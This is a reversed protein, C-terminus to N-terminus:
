ETWGRVWRSGTGRRGPLWGPLDALGTCDRQDAQPDARRVQRLEVGYPQPRHCRQRRSRGPRLDGTGAADPQCLVLAFAERALVPRLREALRRGNDTLPIDTTGTHQGSLSWATEGHRIAFVNVRAEERDSTTPRLRVCRGPRRRKGGRGAQSRPCTTATRAFTNRTSSLSTASRRSPTPPGRGSIPVRDIVDSVLHFRDLDNMVCMDFPTSTTGEEKYGRVHLNKHGTRRYTLRHILWPYGHFAFIIPKDTTFLADFDKDPLGHPHESPPQLKMLDVVNIVRIKLEPCAPAPSRRRGSDGPYARRRLVGNGRRARRGRDNSAWEWIGLGATCHKIAQDMTLWQPAPQKGAVVVNVYNRSRLCHDTVSLLCNADPPLYVRM